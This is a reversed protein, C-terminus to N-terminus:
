DMWIPEHSDTTEQFVEGMADKDWKRLIYYTLAGCLMAAIVPLYLIYISLFIYMSTLLISLSLQLFILGTIIVVIASIGWRRSIRKKREWERVGWVVAQMEEENLPTGREVEVKAVQPHMGYVEQIRVFVPEHRWFAGKIILTPLFIIGGVYTLSPVLSVLILMGMMSWMSIMSLIMPILGIISLNTFLTVLILSGGLDGFWRSQPMRALHFALLVEGTQPRELMMDIMVESVIVASFLPNYTSVIYPNMSDRVWVQTRSPVLTKQQVRGIMDQFESNTPPNKYRVQLLEIFVLYSLTGVPLILALSLIWGTTFFTLGFLYYVVGSLPLAVFMALISIVGRSILPVRTGFWRVTRSQGTSM